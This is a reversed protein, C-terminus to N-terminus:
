FCNRPQPWNRDRHSPTQVRDTDPRHIPSLRSASSLSCLRRCLRLRVAQNHLTGRGLNENKISMATPGLRATLYDLHQILGAFARDQEPTRDIEMVPWVQSRALEKKLCSLMGSFCLGLVGREGSFMSVIQPTTRYGVHYIQFKLENILNVLSHLFAIRVEDNADPLLNAAHILPVPRVVGEQEGM